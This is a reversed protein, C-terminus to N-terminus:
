EGKYIPKRKQQFANLGERRDKTPITQQYYMHEIELATHLNTEIGHNIAAKAQKIAIPGNQAIQKAMKIAEPILNDKDTVKEVVGLHLADKSSIVEATFIMKKAQGIGILRALRQTGGAGPIIALSTETLGLKVHEACLRIDAALALELGGGFAVGNIAAITPISLSDLKNVTHGIRKVAQVTEQGNMGRREKLDAGACFAKEEAGTIIVVRVTDDTKISELSENLADLLESSLANMQKPRHLTLVAINGEIIEYQILEEM